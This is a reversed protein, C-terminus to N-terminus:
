SKLRLHKLQGKCSSCDAGKEDLAGGEVQRQTSGKGHAQHWPHQHPRSESVTKWHESKSQSHCCHKYYGGAQKEDPQDKSLHGAM